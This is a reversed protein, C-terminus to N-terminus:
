NSRINQYYDDIIDLGASIDGDVLILENEKVWSISNIPNRNEDLVIVSYDSFNGGGYRESYSYDIVFEFEKKEYEYWSNENAYRKVITGRRFKQKKM